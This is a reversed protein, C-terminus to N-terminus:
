HRSQKKTKRKIANFYSKGDGIMYFLSVYFVMFIIYLILFVPYSLGLIEQVDNGQRFYLPDPEINFKIEVAAYLYILVIGLYTSPLHYCKFDALGICIFTLSSILLLAHTAISYLNEFLIYQNNFGVGPYAFFILACLLASISALNYLKKKDAIVAIMIIWCSIACWPRPVLTRILPLLDFSRFGSLNVIRRTLEFVFILAGLTIALARKARKSKNRFIFAFAIILAACIILTLIHLFGWQGQIGPNPYSSYIWDKFSM